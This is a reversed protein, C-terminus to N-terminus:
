RLKGLKHAHTYVCVGKLCLGTCARPYVQGYLLLGFWALDLGFWALNFDSSKYLADLLLDKDLRVVQRDSGRAKRSANALM